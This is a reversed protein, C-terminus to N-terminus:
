QCEENLWNIVKKFDRMQNFWSLIVRSIDAGCIQEGSGFQKLHDTAARKIFARDLSDLESFEVMAFFTHDESTPLEEKMAEVASAIQALCDHNNHNM